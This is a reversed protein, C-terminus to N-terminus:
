TEHTNNKEWDYKKITKEIELNSLSLRNSLQKESLAELLTVLKKFFM